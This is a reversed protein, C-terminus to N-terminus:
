ARRTLSAIWLGALILSLIGNWSAMSLGWLQWAVEDCRVIPAQMISSMLQDASMGGQQGGACTSAREVGTHFAALGASILMALAGLGRLWGATRLAPSLMLLGLALAAAHPWRQWVCMPCPALGAVHQFLFAGALLGASGAAALGAAYTRWDEAPAPTV